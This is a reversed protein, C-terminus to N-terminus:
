GYDDCLRQAVHANGPILFDVFLCVLCDLRETDVTIRQWDVGIKKQEDTLENLAGMSFENAIV